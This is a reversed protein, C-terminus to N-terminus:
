TSLLPLGNLSMLNLIAESVFYVGFDAEERANTEQKTAKEKNTELREYYWKQCAESNRAITNVSRPVLKFNVPLVSSAILFHQSARSM